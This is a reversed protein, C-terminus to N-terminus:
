LHPHDHECCKKRSDQRLSISQLHMGAKEESRRDWDCQNIPMRMQLYGPGASPQGVPVAVLAYLCSPNIPNNIPVAPFSTEAAPVPQQDLHYSGKKKALPPPNHDHDSIQSHTVCRSLSKYCVPTPLPQTTILFTSQSTQVTSLSFYADPIVAHRGPNSGKHGGWTWCLRM